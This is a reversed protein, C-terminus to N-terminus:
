DTPRSQIHLYETQNLTIRFNNMKEAESLDQKPFLILKMISLSMVLGILTKIIGM